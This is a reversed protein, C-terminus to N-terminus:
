RRHNYPSIRISHECASFKLIERKATTCKMLRNGVYISALSAIGNQWHVRTHGRPVCYYQGVLYKGPLIVSISILLWSIADSILWRAVDTEFITPIYETPFNGTKFVTLLSTKGCAGDGVIVLKYRNSEVPIFRHSDLDILISSFIETIITYYNICYWHSWKNILSHHVYKWFPQEMFSKLLIKKNM